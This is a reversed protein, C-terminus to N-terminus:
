KRKRSRGRKHKPAKFWGLSIQVRSGQAETSGRAPSQGVVGYSLGKGHKPRHRARKVKGLACAAGGLRSKATRLSLHKLVPVVCHRAGSPAPAPAPAPATVTITSSQTSVNGLADTATATVTYRGPSAYAHTASLGSAGGGDGFSWSVFV